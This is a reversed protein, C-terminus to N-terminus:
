MSRFMSTFGGTDRSGLDLHIGHHLGGLERGHKVPHLQGRHSGHQVHDDPTQVQLAGCGRRVEVELVGPERAEQELGTREQGFLSYVEFGGTCRAASRDTKVSNM